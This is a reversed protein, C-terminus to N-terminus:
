GAPSPVVCMLLRLERGGAWVSGKRHRRTHERGPRHGPTRGPLLRTATRVIITIGGAIGGVVMAAAAYLGVPGPLVGRVDAPWALKPDSLTRPLHWLVAAVDAPGLHMWTHGFLLGALQGSLWVLLGAIGTTALGWAILRQETETM